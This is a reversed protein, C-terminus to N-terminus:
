WSSSPLYDAGIWTLVLSLPQLANASSHSDQNSRISAFKGAHFMMMRELHRMGAQHDTM